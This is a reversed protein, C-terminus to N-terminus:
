ATPSRTSSRRISRSTARSRGACSRFIPKALYKRQAGEDFVYQRLHRRRRGQPLGPDQRGPATAIESIADQRATMPRRRYTPQATRVDRQTCPRHTCGVLPTPNRNPTGAPTASPKTPYTPEPRGAPRSSSTSCAGSSASSTSTATRAGSSARAPRRARAADLRPPAAPLVHHHHRRDALRVRDVRAGPGPRAQRDAPQVRRLRHPRDVPRPGALGADDGPPADVAQYLDEIPPGDAATGAVQYPIAVLVGTGDADKDLLLKLGMDRGPDGISAYPRGSGRRDDPGARGM